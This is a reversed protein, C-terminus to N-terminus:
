PACRPAQIHTLVRESDLDLVAIDGAPHGTVVVAPDRPGLPALRAVGVSDGWGEGLHRLDLPLSWRGTDMHYQYLSQGSSEVFLLREGRAQPPAGWTNLFGAPLMAAGPVSTWLSHEPGYAAALVHGDRQRLLLPVEDPGECVGRGIVLVEGPQFTVAGACLGGEPGGLSRTWLASASPLDYLTGTIKQCAPGAYYLVMALRREPHLWLRPESDCGPDLAAPAAVEVCSSADCLDWRGAAQPRVEASPPPPPEVLPAARYLGTALDVSWCRTPTAETDEWAALCFRLSEGQREVQYLSEYVGPSICAVGEALKGQLRQTQEQPQTPEQPQVQAQPEPPKASRCAGLALCLLVSAGLTARKM